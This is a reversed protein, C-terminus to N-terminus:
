HLGAGSRITQGDAEGGLSWEEFSIAKIEEAEEPAFPDAGSLSRAKDRWADPPTGEPVCRALFVMAFDSGLGEHRRGSMSAIRWAIWLHGALDSVCTRAGGMGSKRKTEEVWFPWLWETETAMPTLVAEWLCASCYAVHAEADKLEEETLASGQPLQLRAGKALYSLGGRDSSM